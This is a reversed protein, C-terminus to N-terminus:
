EGRLAPVARFAARAASMALVGLGWDGGIEIEAVVQRGFFRAKRLTNSIHPKPLDWAVGQLTRADAVADEVGIRDEVRGTGLCVPCVWFHVGTTGTGYCVLCDRTTTM